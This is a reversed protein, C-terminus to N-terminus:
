LKDEEIFRFGKHGPHLNILKNVLDETEGLANSQRRLAELSIGTRKLQFYAEERLKRTTKNGKKSVLIATSTAVLEHLAQLVAELNREMRKRDGDDLVKLLVLTYHLRGDVIAQTASRLIDSRNVLGMGERAAHQNICDEKAKLKDALDQPARYSFLPMSM